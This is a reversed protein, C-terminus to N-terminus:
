KFIVEIGLDSLEGTIQLIHERNQSDQTSGFTVKKLERCELLPAYACEKLYAIDLEQLMPLAALVSIDHIQTNAAINLTTIQSLNSLCSIDVVYNSEIDLSVLNKNQIIPSIDLIANRSLIATTLTTIGSLSSVDTIKNGNIGLWDLRNMDSLASIDYIKNDHLNLQVLNVSNSLPSIDTILNAGVSLDYLDIDSLSSIDQIQNNELYLTKLNRLRNLPAIDSINNNNLYLTTINGLNAIPRLDTISNDNASLQFLSTAYELGTLSRINKGSVDLVTLRALDGSSVSENETKGLAQKVTLELAKDDFTVSPIPAGICVEFVIGNDAASNQSMIEGKFYDASAVGYVTPYIGAVALSTLVDNINQGIYREDQFVITNAPASHNCYILKMGSFTLLAGLMFCLVCKLGLRIKPVKVSIQDIAKRFEDISEYRSIPKNDTAKAIIKDLQQPLYAGSEALPRVQYPPDSLSKGSLMDYLVHGLSYIDSRPDSQFGALVEPATYGSTGALLTDRDAEDKYYRAIGFDIIRVNGDPTIIINDPKLDRLIIPYPKMRHLLNLANCLGYFIQKAHSFSFCSNKKIEQQLTNGDIYERILYTYNDDSFIEFIQPFYESHLENINMLLAYQREGIPHSVKIIYEAGSKECLYIQGEGGTAIKRLNAYGKQTVIDMM